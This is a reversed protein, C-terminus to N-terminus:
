QLTVECGGVNDLIPCHRVKNRIKKTAIKQRMTDTIAPTRFHYPQMSYGIEQDRKGIVYDRKSEKIDCSSPRIEDVRPHKPKKGCKDQGATGGM